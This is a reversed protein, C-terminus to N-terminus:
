KKLDPINSKILNLDMPISPMNNEAESSFKMKIPWGFTKDVYMTMLTGPSTESEYEYIICKRTGFNEIYVEEEYTKKLTYGEVTYSKNDLHSWVVNQSKETGLPTEIEMYMQLKAHTTNYDVVELRLSINITISLVTIEGHYEAYAGRFLWPIEAPRIFFWYIFAGLIIAIMVMGILVCLVKRIRKKSSVTEEM